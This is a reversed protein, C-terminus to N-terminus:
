RQVGHDPAGHANAPLCALPGADTLACTLPTRCPTMAFLQTCLRIRIHQHQPFELYGSTWGCDMRACLFPWFQLVKGTRLLEFQWLPGESPNDHLCATSAMRPCPM